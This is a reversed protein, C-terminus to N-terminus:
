IAYLITENISLQYHRLWFKYDDSMSMIVEPLEFIDGPKHYISVALKPHWKRITQEAGLLANYEAGEVDLKLFTVKGGAVIEDVTATHITIGGDEMIRAGQSGSGAFHLETCENWLGKNYLNVNNLAANDMRRKALEFNDPDPEFSFVKEYDGECWKAFQLVTRGDYCGGDIFVEKGSSKVINKDFYQIDCANEYCERLNIIHEDPIGHAKLESVIEGNAAMSNVLVYYDAYDKYFEEPSIVKKEDVGDQQKLEDNDVFLCFDLEPYLKKIVWYDNGGGRIVLRDSVSKAKEMLKFFVAEDIISATIEAAYSANGTLSWMARKEFLWRSYDDQLRDYFLRSKKIM